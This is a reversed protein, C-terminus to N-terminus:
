TTVPHEPGGMDHRPEIQDAGVVLLRQANRQLGLLKARKMASGRFAEQYAEADMALIDTALEQASKGALVAREAFAPERVPKAFRQNWPCVEQPWHGSLRKSIGSDVPRSVRLRVFVQTRVFFAPM